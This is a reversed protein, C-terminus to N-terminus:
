AARRRKRKSYKPSIKKDNFQPLRKYRALYQAQYEYELRAVRGLCRLLRPTVISTDCRVPHIAVYLSQTLVRYNRHVYRFRDAGGHNTRRGSITDDFQNLRSQLGNVACTM